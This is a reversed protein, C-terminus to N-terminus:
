PASGVASCACRAFRISKGIEGAAVGFQEGVGGCFGRRVDSTPPGDAPADRGGFGDSMVTGHCMPALSAARFSTVSTVLM